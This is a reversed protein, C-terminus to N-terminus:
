IERNTVGNVTVQLFGNLITEPLLNKASRRVIGNGPMRIRDSERHARVRYQKKIIIIM